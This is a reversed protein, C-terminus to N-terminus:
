RSMPEALWSHEKAKVHENVLADMSLLLDESAQEGELRVWVFPDCRAQQVRVARGSEVATAIHATAEVVTRPHIAMVTSRESEVTGYADLLEQWLDDRVILPDVKWTTLERLAALALRPLPASCAVKLRREDDHEIAEFPVVGLARVADRSLGGPGTRVTMPDIDTVYGVGSQAALARILDVPAVADMILLQEGLRLGTTEQEALAARLTDAKIARQHLLVAGLRMTRGRIGTQTWSTTADILRERTVAEFCARCCYWEDEFLVGRRAAGIRLFDPRWRGCQERACRAM